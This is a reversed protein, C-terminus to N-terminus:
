VLTFNPFNGKFLSVNSMIKEFLNRCRSRHREVIGVLFSPLFLTIPSKVFHPVNKLLHIRRQLSLKLSLSFLLLKIINSFMQPDLTSIVSYVIQQTTFVRVNCFLHTKFKVRRKFSYDESFKLSLLEIIAVVTLRM